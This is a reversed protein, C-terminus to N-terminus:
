PTGGPDTTTEYLIEYSDALDLAQGPEWVYTEHARIREPTRGPVRLTTGGRSGLDTALVLWGDLELKLHTRSVYSSGQPLRVLHPWATSEADATPRRGFVVGRDLPVTDGDPLRVLGLQPRPLRQPEQPPVAAGCVRCTPTFAATMHGVPCRVALVTEHTGQHLHHGAPDGRSGAPSGTPPGTPPGTPRGTSPRMPPGTPAPSAPRFTTHGDHDAHGADAADGPDGPDAAAERRVTHQESPPAAPAAPAAPASTAVPRPAPVPARGALIEAPIGDILGPGPPAAPASPVVSVPPGDAPRLDAADAPAVGSVLRLSGAAHGARLSLSRVGDASTVRAAGRSVVGPSGPTADVMAFSADDGLTELLVETVRELAPAPGTLLDWLRDVLAPTSSADVLLWRQGAALLLGTGPAYRVEM